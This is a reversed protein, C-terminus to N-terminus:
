LCEPAGCLRAAERGAPSAVADRPHHNDRSGSKAYAALAIPMLAAILVCWYALPM